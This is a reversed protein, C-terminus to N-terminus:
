RKKLKTIYKSIKEAEEFEDNDAYYKMLLPLTFEIILRYRSMTLDLEQKVKRYMKWYQYSIFSVWVALASLIIIEFIISIRM